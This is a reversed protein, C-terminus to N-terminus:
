CQKEEQKRRVFGAYMEGALEYHDDPYDTVWWDDMGNSVRINDVNLGLKIAQNRLVVYERFNM